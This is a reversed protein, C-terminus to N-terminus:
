ADQLWGAATLDTSADFVFPNESSYSSSGFFNAVSENGTHAVWAPSAERVVYDRLEAMTPNWEHVQHYERFYQWCLSQLTTAEQATVAAPIGVPWTGSTPYWGGEASTRFVVMHEMVAMFYHGLPGDIHVGDRFFKQMTASDSAASIGPARGDLAAEIVKALVWTAPANHVRHSVGQRELTLNLRASIGDWVKQMVKEYRIWSRATTHDIGANARPPFWCSWLYVKAGPSRSMFADYYVKFRRLTDEWQLCNLLDHRETILLHTYRGGSVASPTRWEDLFNINSYGTKTIGLRFGDWTPPDGVRRRITAGADTHIQWQLSKGLSAALQESQLENPRSSLSHGSVM